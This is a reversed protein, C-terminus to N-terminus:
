FGLSEAWGLERDITALDFTDAQWMELQNIATSPAYNCGVLWPHEAGWALVAWWSLVGLLVAIIILRILMAWGSAKM